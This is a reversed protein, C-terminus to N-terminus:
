AKDTLQIGSILVIQACAIWIPGIVLGIKGGVMGARTQSVILSARPGFCPTGRM